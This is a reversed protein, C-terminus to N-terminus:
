TTSDASSEAVNKSPRRMLRFLQVIGLVVLVTGVIGLLMWLWLPARRSPFDLDLEYRIRTQETVPGFYSVSIRWEESRHLLEPTATFEVQTSRGDQRAFPRDGWDLSGPVSPGNLILAVQAQSKAKAVIRGLQNVKFTYEHSTFDCGLVDAYHGPGFYTVVRSLARFPTDRLYRLLGLYLSKGEETMFHAPRGYGWLALNGQVAIRWYKGRCPTTEPQRAVGKAGLLKLSGADYVGLADLTEESGTGYLRITEKSPLLSRLPDPATEVLVVGDGFGHAAHPANISATPFAAQLFRAGFYGMVLLKVNDALYRRMSDSVQLSPPATSSSGGVIVIGPKYDPLDNIQSLHLYHTEFEEQPLLNLYSNATLRDSAVFVVRNSPSSPFLEDLLPALTKHVNSYAVVVATIGGLLAAIWKLGQPLKSLSEFFRALRSKRNNM